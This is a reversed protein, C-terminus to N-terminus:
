GGDYAGKKQRENLLSVEKLVATKIPNPDSPKISLRAEM